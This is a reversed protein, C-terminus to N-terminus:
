HLGKSNCERCMCKRIGNETWINWWNSTLEGCYICIGKEIEKHPPMIKEPSPVFNTSTPTNEEDFVPLSKSHREKIKQQEQEYKIKKRKQEEEYMAKEERNKRLQDYEGPHVFEGTKPSIKIDVLPHIEERGLYVNPAHDLILARYTILDETEANLYHITRGNDTEFHRQDWFDYESQQLFKRETPSLLIDGEHDPDSKLMKSVFVWIVSVKLKDFVGRIKERTESKMGADIIWYAFIKNQNEVWCDIPHPLTINEVKKEITVESPYKNLLWHYLIARAALMDPSETGYSCGVLHKHAFHHRKIKGARVRVPQQCGQCVLLNQKDMLRLQDLQKEWVPDLIVIEEQTQQHLAKYM